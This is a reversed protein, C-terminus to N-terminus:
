LEKKSVVIEVDEALKYYHGYPGSTGLQTLMAIVFGREVLRTLHM